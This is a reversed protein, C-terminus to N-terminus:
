VAPGPCPLFDVDYSQNKITVVAGDCDIRVTGPSSLTTAPLYYKPGCGPPWVYTGNADQGVLTHVPCPPVFAHAPQLAVAAGFVPTALALSLLVRRIM